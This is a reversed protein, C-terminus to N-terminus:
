RNVSFRLSNMNFATLKVFSLNNPIQGPNFYYYLLLCQIVSEIEDQVKFVGIGDPKPGQQNNDQYDKQCKQIQQM